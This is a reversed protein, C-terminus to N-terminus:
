DSTSNAGTRRSILTILPFRLLNGQPVYLIGAALEFGAFEPQLADESRCRLEGRHRPHQGAPDSICLWVKEVM